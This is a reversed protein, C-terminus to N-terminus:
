RLEFVVPLRVRLSRPTLGSPFPLPPLSRVAEMAAEDLVRHSSSDVVAVDSIAGNPQVFIELEVTGSLGRRRAVGPYRLAEQIRRRLAARYPGYDGEGGIGGTGSM